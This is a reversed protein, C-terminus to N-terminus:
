RLSGALRHRTLPHSPPHNPHAPVLPGKLHSTFQLTFTLVSVAIIRSISLKSRCSYLIVFRVLIVTLSEKRAYMTSVLIRM